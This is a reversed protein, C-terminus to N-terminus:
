LGIVRSSALMDSAMFGPALVFYQRDISLQSDITCRQQIEDTTAADLRNVMVCPRIFRGEEFLWDLEYRAYDFYFALAM